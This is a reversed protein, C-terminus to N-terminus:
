DRYYPQKIQHLLLRRHCTLFEESLEPLLELARTQWKVAIDFEGTEAAAAALAQLCASKKWGTLECARTAEAMARKGDRINSDPCTALFWALARHCDANDPGRRAAETFDALRRGFQKRFEWLSARTLYYWYRDPALAIAKDLDSTAEDYEAKKMWADGRLAYFLTEGPELQIAETYDAFAWPKRM